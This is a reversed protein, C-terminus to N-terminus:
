IIVSHIKFLKVKYFFIRFTKDEKMKLYVYITNKVFVKMIKNTAM